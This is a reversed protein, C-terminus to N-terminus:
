PGWRRAPPGPHASPSCTFPSSGKWEFQRFRSGQSSVMPSRVRYNKVSPATQQASGPGNRREHSISQSEQGGPAPSRERMQTCCLQCVQPPGRPAPRRPAITGESTARGNLTPWPRGKQAGVPPGPGTAAPLLHARPGGCCLVGLCGLLLRETTGCGQPGATGGQSRSPGARHGEVTLGTHGHARTGTDGTGRRGLGRKVKLEGKLPGREM